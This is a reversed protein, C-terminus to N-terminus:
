EHAFKRSYVGFGVLALGSVSLLIVALWPFAEGTKPVPSPPPVIHYELIWGHDVTKVTLTYHEVESGTVSWVTGDDKTVWEYHWDMDSSITVDSPVEGTTPIDSDSTTDAVGTLFTIFKGAFPVSVAMAGKPTSRLVKTEDGEPGGTHTVHAVVSDPRYKEYGKDDWVVNIFYTVDKYTPTYTESKPTTKVDYNWSDNGVEPLNLLVRSFTRIGNEEVIKLEPIFYLGAPLDAFEAKSDVLKLTAYAEPSNGQVFADLTDGITDWEDGSEVKEPDFGCDAFTETLTYDYRESWEAVRYLSIETGDVDGDVSKYNVSLSNKKKLDFLDKSQDTSAAFAKLPMAILMALAILSVTVLSFYKKM